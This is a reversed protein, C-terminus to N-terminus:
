VKTVDPARGGHGARRQNLRDRPLGHWAVPVHRMALGSDYTATGPPFLGPDDFFGSSVRDVRLPEVQWANTSLRMAQIDGEVRGASFGVSGREFFSSAAALDEFLESGKLEDVVRAQVDVSSGRSDGRVSIAIEEADEVVDFTARHHVGPFVRGGVLVNLWSDSDRRTIFVGSRSVGDDDWEVAIRHAVNESRQGVLRPLGLPRLEGLRLLCIGAVAHGRTLQPRLPTPLLAAATVPDVRYNILLRREIVGQLAPARM